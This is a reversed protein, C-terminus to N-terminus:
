QYRISYLSRLPHRWHRASINLSSQGHINHRRLRRLLTSGHRVPGVLLLLLSRLHRPPLLEKLYQLALSTPHIGNDLPRCRLHAIHKNSRRRQRLQNRWLCVRKRKSHSSPPRCSRPTRIINTSSPSTQRRSSGVQLHSPLFTFPLHWKCGAVNKVVNSHSMLSKVTGGPYNHHSYSKVFSQATSNETAILEAAGWGPPRM